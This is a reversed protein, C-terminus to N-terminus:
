RGPGFLAGNGLLWSGHGKLLRSSVKRPRRPVSLGGNKPMSGIAVAGAHQVFFSGLFRLTVDSCTRKEFEAISHFCAPQLSTRACNHWSIFMFLFLLESTTLVLRLSWNSFSILSDINKRKMHRGLQWNWLCRYWVYMCVYWKRKIGSPTASAEWINRRSAWTKSFNLKAILFVVSTVPPLGM